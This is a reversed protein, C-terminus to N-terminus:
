RPRPSIPCANSSTAATPTCASTSARPTPPTSPAASHFRRAASTFRSATSTASSRSSPPTPSADPRCRCMVSAMVILPDALLPAAVADITAPDILPEDGQVNVIITVDPPLTRAAEAVRDTGTRHAASTLVVNGGFAEVAAVIAADPTAVLVGSLLTAQRARSYVRQIMPAGGIDALPKDPLRTAALRAPLIAVATGEPTSPNSSLMSEKM